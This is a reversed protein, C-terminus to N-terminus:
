KFVPFRKNSRQRIGKEVQVYANEFARDEIVVGPKDKIARVIRDTDLTSQVM